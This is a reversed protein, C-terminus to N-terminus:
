IVTGTMLAIAQQFPVCDAYRGNWIFENCYRYTMEASLFLNDFTSNTHAPVIMHFGHEFGAKVTADICYETQLGAIIVTNERKKRLYDSLGTDRFASNVSKDFIKEHEAPQFSDYIEFGDTGKALSSGPGDDHRVYIVEIQNQRATDILTKVNSIFLDSQYLRSNVIAKQADVILLVVFEDGM